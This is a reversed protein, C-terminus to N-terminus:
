REAESRRGSADADSTVDLEIYKLDLRGGLSVIDGDVLECRSVPESNVLIGNTSGADEIIARTGQVILRAHTRSIFERRICIDNSSARGITVVPGTVPYTTGDPAELMAIPGRHRQLDRRFLEGIHIIEVNDEAHRDAEVDDPPTPAGIAEIPAQVQVLKELEDIRAQKSELESELKGILHRQAVLEHRLSRVEDANGLRRELEIIRHALQEKEANKRSLEDNADRLRQALGALTEEYEEIRKRLQSFHKARGDLYARLEGIEGRLQANLKELEGIKPETGDLAAHMENGTPKEDNAAM